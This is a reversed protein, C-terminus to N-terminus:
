SGHFAAMEIDDLAIRGERLSRKQEAIQKKEVYRNKIKFVFKQKAENGKVIGIITGVTLILIIAWKSNFQKM